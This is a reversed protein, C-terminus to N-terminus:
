EPLGAAIPTQCSRSCSTAVAVATTIGALDTSRM